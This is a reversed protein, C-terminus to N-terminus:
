SEVERKKAQKILGIREEESMNRFDLYNQQTIYISQNSKERENQIIQATKPIKNDRTQEYHIAAKINGGIAAKQVVCNVSYTGLAKGQMYAINAESGETAIEKRLWAVSLEALPAILAIETGAGAANCIVSKQVDTLTLPQGGPKKYYECLDDDEKIRRTLTRYSMQILSSIELASMGSKLKELVLKKEDPTLCKKQVRSAMPMESIEFSPDNNVLSMLKHKAVGLKHAIGAWSTGISRLNKIEDKAQDNYTFKEM